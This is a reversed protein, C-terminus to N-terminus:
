MEMFCLVIVLRLQTKLINNELELSTIKLNMQIEKMYMEKRLLDLYKKMKLINNLILDSNDTVDELM